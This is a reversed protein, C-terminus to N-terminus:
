NTSTTDLCRHLCTTTPLSLNSNNPSNYLHLYIMIIVAMLELLGNVKFVPLLGPMKIVRFKKKKYVSKNKNM